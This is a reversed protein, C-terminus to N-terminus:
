ARELEAATKLFVSTTNEHPFPADPIPVNLFRFLPEWGDQADLVLLREPAITAIVDANHAIYTKRVNAESLDGKFVREIVCPIIYHDPHNQARIEHLKPLITAAFSAFWEDTNRLTLIVKADPYGEVFEKWYASFPWDVASQYFLTLDNASIPEGRGLRVWAENLFRNGIMEQAHLTPGFGLTDLAVKLSRTGTRGFGAGIVKM